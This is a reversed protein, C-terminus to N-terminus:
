SNIENTLFERIKDNYDKRKNKINTAIKHESLYDLLPLFAKSLNELRNLYKEPLDDFCDYDNTLRSYPIEAITSAAPINEIFKADNMKPLEFDRVAQKEFFHESEEAGIRVMLHKPKMLVIKKRDIFIKNDKAFLIFYESDNFFEVLTELNENSVSTSNFEFIDNLIIKELIM